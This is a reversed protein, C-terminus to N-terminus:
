ESSAAVVLILLTATGILGGALASTTNRSRARSVYGERYCVAEVGEPVFSPQTASGSAVATVIGTGILGLLVGSVIGGVMWGTGSHLNNAAERGRTRDLDCEAIRLRRTLSLEAISTTVAPRALAAPRELVSAVRLQAQAPAAMVLALGMIILARM